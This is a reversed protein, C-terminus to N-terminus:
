SLIWEFLKEGKSEFRFNFIRTVLAFWIIKLPPERKSTTGPLNPSIGYLFEISCLKGKIAELPFLSLSSSFFFRMLLKIKQWRKWTEPVSAFTDMGDRYSRVLALRCVVVFLSNFILDREASWWLEKEKVASIENIEHSIKKRQKETCHLM